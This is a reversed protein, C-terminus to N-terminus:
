GLGADDFGAPGGDGRGAALEVAYHQKESRAAPRGAHPEDEAGHGDQEQLNEAEEHGRGVTM